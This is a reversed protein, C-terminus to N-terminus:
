KGNTFEVAGAVGIGIGMENGRLPTVTAHNDANNVTISFSGDLHSSLWEGKKEVETLDYDIRYSSSAKGKGMSTSVFTGRRVVRRGNKNHIEYQITGNDTLTITWEDFDYDGTVVCHITGSPKSTAVSKQDGPTWNAANVSLLALAFLLM